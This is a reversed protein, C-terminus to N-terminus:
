NLITSKQLYSSQGPYIFLCTGNKITEIISHNLGRPVAPCGWSRGIYGQEHVLTENVYDAGHIVIDRRLANNNIGTEVGNLKLSYGNNGTYPSMTVYFGPSSQFSKPRNSFKEAYEKGSRQGHAVYTQFLLSYNNLDIIYLRKSSSPQSFDAISIINDSLVIGSEKLKELGKVALEFVNKSLGLMNLKLSDFVNFKAFAPINTIADGPNGTSIVIKKYNTHKNIDDAIRGVSKAFVFPIHLLFIVISSFFLYLNKFKKNM